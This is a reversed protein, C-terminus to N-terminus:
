DTSYFTYALTFGYFTDIYPDHILLDSTVLLGIYHFSKVIM